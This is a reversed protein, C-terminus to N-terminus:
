SERSISRARDKMIIQTTVKGNIMMAAIKIAAQRIKRPHNEINTKLVIFAHLRICDRMSKMQGAKRILNETCWHVFACQCIKKLENESM